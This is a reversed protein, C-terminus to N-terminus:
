RRPLSSRAEPEDDIITLVATSRAPVLEAGVASSLSLNVTRTGDLTTNNTIPIPM